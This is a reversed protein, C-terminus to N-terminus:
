GVTLQGFSKGWITPRWSRLARSTADESAAYHLVSRRHSAVTVADTSSHADRFAFVYHAIEIRLTGERSLLGPSKIIEGPRFTPTRIVLIRM